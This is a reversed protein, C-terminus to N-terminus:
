LLTKDINILKITNTRAEFQIYPFDPYKGSGYRKVYSNITYKLKTLVPADAVKSKFGKDTSNTYYLDYHTIYFSLKELVFSPAHCIFIFDNCYEERLYMLDLLAYHTKDATHLQRYDDFVFLTNISEKYDELEDIHPGIREDAINIFRNQPDFAVVSGKPNSDQWSEALALADATKGTRNHGIKMLVFNDRYEDKM